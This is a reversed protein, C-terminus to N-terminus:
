APSRARVVPSSARSLLIDHECRLLDTLCLLRSRARERASRIPAGTEILSQFRSRCKGAAVLRFPRQGIQSVLERRDAQAAPKM